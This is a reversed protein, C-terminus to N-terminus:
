GAGTSGDGRSGARTSSEIWPTATIHGFLYSFPRCILARKIIRLNSRIYVIIFYLITHEQVFLTYCM